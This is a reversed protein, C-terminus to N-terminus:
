SEFRFSALIFGCRGAVKGPTMPPQTTYMEVGTDLNEARVVLKEVDLVRGVRDSYGSCYGFLTHEQYAYM